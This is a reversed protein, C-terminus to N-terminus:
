NLMSDNVIIDTAYNETMPVQLNVIQETWKIQVTLHAIIYYSYPAGISPAFVATPSATKIGTNNTYVVPAVTVTANGCFLNPNSNCDTNSYDGKTDLAVRGILPTSNPNVAALQPAFYSVPQQRQTEILQQAVYAAQIKHKSYSALLQSNTLMSAVFPLFVVMIGMSVLVEVLTFGNKKNNFNDMYKVSREHNKIEM